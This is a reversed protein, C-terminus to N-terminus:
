KSVRIDKLDVDDHYIEGSKILKLVDDVPLLALIESYNSIYVVKSSLSTNSNRVLAEKDTLEVKKRLWWHSKTDWQM